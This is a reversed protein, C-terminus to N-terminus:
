LMWGTVNADADEGGEVVTLRLCSSLLFSEHLNPFLSYLLFILCFIGVYLMHYLLALLSHRNNTPGKFIKISEVLAFIRGAKFMRGLPCTQDDRAMIHPSVSCDSCGMTGRSRSM